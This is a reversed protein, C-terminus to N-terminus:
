ENLHRCLSRCGLDSTDDGGSPSGGAEGSLGEMVQCALAQEPVDKLPRVFTFSEIEDQDGSVVDADLFFGDGKAGLNDHGGGVVGSARVANRFGDQWMGLDGVDDVDLAVFGEHVGGQDVGQHGCQYGFGVQGHDRGGIRHRVEGLEVVGVDHLDDDIPLSVSEIEGATGKGEEPGAGVGERGQPVHAEVAVAAIEEFLEDTPRGAQKFLRFLELLEAGKFVAGADANDQGFIMGDSEIGRFLNWLQFSEKGGTVGGLIRLVLLWDDPTFYMKTVPPTTEERPFPSAEADM